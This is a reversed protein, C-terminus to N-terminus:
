PSYRQPARIARGRRTKMVPTAPGSDERESDTSQDEDNESEVPSEIAPVPDPVHDDNLSLNADDEESFIQSADQVVDEPEQVTTQDLDSTLWSEPHPGYCHKAHNMHVIRVPADPNAQVRLSTDNYLGVVLVPGKYKLGLKKKEEVFDRLYIWDGRKFKRTQAARNYNRKQRVASKYLNERAITFASRCSNQLWQVYQTPCQYDPEQSLREFQLDLPMSIDRGFLMMAPTNGTSEQITSRYAMLALPLLEDWEKKHEQSLVRLMSLITRNSREILGDSSPHYPTTRTKDINLIECIGDLVQNCFEGGQDSHFQLPIGMRPIWESCIKDATDYADKSAIPYAEVWKTFYDEVVLIYTNGRTTTSVPGVLDAAIKEMPAGVPIQVLPAKHSEGGPKVLACHHCAKCWRKIDQKCKYWYFTKKLRGYTKNEGLHGATIHDHALKMLENRLRLPVLYRKPPTVLSQKPPAQRYLVENDFDIEKWLTWYTKLEASESAIENWAPRTTHTKKLKRMVKLDEDEEQAQKLDELTFKNIWIDRFIPETDSIDVMDARLEQVLTAYEPAPGKARRSPRVTTSSQNDLQVTAIVPSDQTSPVTMTTVKQASKKTKKSKASPPPPPLPHKAKQRRRNRPPKTRLKKKTKPLVIRADCPLTESVDEWESNLEYLEHSPLCLNVAPLGLDKCKQYLEHYARSMMTAPTPAIQEYGQWEAVLATLTEMFAEKEWQYPTEDPLNSQAAKRALAAEKLARSVVDYKRKESRSTSKSHESQNMSPPIGDGAITQIKALSEESNMSHQDVGSLEGVPTHSSQDEPTTVDASTESIRGSEPPSVPSDEQPPEATEEETNHQPQAAPQPPGPSVENSPQVESQNLQGKKLVTLSTTTVTGHPKVPTDGAPYMLVDESDYYPLEEWEEDMHECESPGSDTSIGDSLWVVTPTKAQSKQMEAKKEERVRRAEICTQCDERPCPRIDEPLRSLADANTHLRGPRHETIMDYESLAALWRALMGEPNKFNILWTLSAHDTRLKFTQGWIYHRTVGLACKVALLELYTPCYHKESKSLARSWYLIVKEEGDQVQSLVAGLGQTSADTDLIFQCGPKPYALVPPHLLAQRLDQFAQERKHNWEFVETKRTLENLPLSLRSFNPIFRRYYSCFGLFSRVQPVTRPRPWRAVAKLKAPDCQVGQESVVHGLFEVKKQFLSCKAPKFKIEARLARHFVLCLNMLALLFTAGIVLVDDLYVQLQEQTMGTLVLEMLRQFTAPANTLGFSMVTFQYLGGTTAFATKERDHQDMEVQWYGSHLDLTSFWKAGQLNELCDQLRPIPHADKHTVHNLKRYDVCFRYTGDKKKVIVVPSAWPSYSPEIVGKDLMKQVEDKIVKQTHMAQRRPPQKIPPSDGTNITHTVLATRGIQGDPGTFANQYHCITTKIQALQMPTLDDPLGDILPQLHPPVQLDFDLDSEETPPYWVNADDAAMYRYPDDEMTLEDKAAKSPNMESMPTAEFDPIPAKGDQTALRNLRAMAPDEIKVKATTSCIQAEEMQILCGLVHGKQLKATRSSTNVVEILFKGGKPAVVGSMFKVGKEDPHQYRAKEDGPYVHEALPSLLGLAKNPWRGSAHAEVITKHGSPIYYEADTVAASTYLKYSNVQPQAQDESDADVQAKTKTYYTTGNIIVTGERHDQQAGVRQLIDLGLIAEGEGIDAILFPCPEAKQNGIKMNLYTFGYVNLATQGACMVPSVFEYMTGPKGMLKYWSYDLASHSAGSDVLMSMNYGNVNCDLYGLATGSMVRIDADSHIWDHFTAHLKQELMEEPVEDPQFDLKNIKQDAYWKKRLDRKAQNDKSKGEESPQDPASTKKEVTEQVEVKKQRESKKLKSDKLEPTEPQRRSQRVRKARQPKPDPTKPESQEKKEITKSPKQPEPDQKKLKEQKKKKESPKVKNESHCLTSMKEQTAPAVVLTTPEPYIDGPPTFVQKMLEKQDKPKQLDSKVGRAPIDIRSELFTESLADETDCGEDTSETYVVPSSSDEESPYDPLERPPPPFALKTAEDLDHEVGSDSTSRLDDPDFRLVPHSVEERGTM